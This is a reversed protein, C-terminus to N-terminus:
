FLGVDSTSVWGENGNELKINTWEPNTDLVKVKTGEHLNFKKTSSIIPEDYIKSERELIIAFNINSKQSLATYGFMMSGIFLIIFFVSSFFGIRKQINQKTVLFQFAFVCALSLSFVSLWAWGKTSLVSVIGTKIIGTFFSEKSEIKDIIRENAIRLNTKIDTNNPELKNAYEYYYIAKGIQNSKYYANGLNYYLKYSELGNDLINEYYKIAETYHKQSYAKEANLQLQNNSFIVISFFLGVLSLIFRNLCVLSKMKKVKLTVVYYFNSRKDFQM